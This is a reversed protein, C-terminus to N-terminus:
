FKVFGKVPALAEIEEGRGDIHHVRVSTRTSAKIIPMNTMPLIEEASTNAQRGATITVSNGLNPLRMGLAQGLNYRIEGSDSSDRPASSSTSGVNRKRKFIPGLTPVSGAIIIIMSELSSASFYPIAEHAFDWDNNDFLTSIECTRWIAAAMASEIVALDSGCVCYLTILMALNVLVQLIISTWLPGKLAHRSQGIIALLYLAVSIRGCMPGVFLFAQGIYIWKLLERALPFTLYEYHRGFDSTVSLQVCVCYLLACAWAVSMTVDDLGFRKVKFVKSYLRGAMLVTAIGFLTWTLITLPPGDNHNPPIVDPLPVTEAM